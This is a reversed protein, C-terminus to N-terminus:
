QPTCNADDSAPVGAPIPDPLTHRDRTPTSTQAVSVAHVRIAVLSRTALLSRVPWGCSAVAACLPPLPRAAGASARHRALSSSPPLRANQIALGTTWPGRGCGARIDAVAEALVDWAHHSAATSAGIQTRSTRNPCLLAAPNHHRVDARRVAPPVIFRSVDSPALIGSEPSRLRSIIVATSTIHM